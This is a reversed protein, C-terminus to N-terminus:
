KAESQERFLAMGNEPDGGGRFIPIEVADTGVFCSLRRRLVYSRPGV